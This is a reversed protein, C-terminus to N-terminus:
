PPMARGAEPLNLGAGRRSRILRTRREAAVDGPRGSDAILFEKSIRALGAPAVVRICAKAVVDQDDRPSTQRSLGQPAHITAQFRGRIHQFPQCSGAEGPERQAIAANISHKPNSPGGHWDEGNM